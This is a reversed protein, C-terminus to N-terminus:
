KNRPTPASGELIALKARMASLERRLLETEVRDYGSGAHRALEHLMEREDATIDTGTKHPGFLALALGERAGGTVPVALCPAAEEPPLGASRWQERRLRTPADRALCQLAPADRAADLERLAAGDWGIAPEARRLAGEMWRFVAASSLRLAQAPEAALLRDIEAFDGARLMAEGTQRLWQRLRHYRRNFVHDVLDVAIEHLRNFILLVIPAVVLPWIWEPLHLSEQYQAVAEHLAVVPVGLVLMLATTITGHRLPIAVSVVRQRRVATGVFYAIVGHLLYLLGIASQSLTAGWLDYLLGSSQCIEAFIFAPLGISCGAIAWRMRQEDQAPLRRRRELLIAIVVADVVYGALFSAEAIRETPVGFLNAGPLLMLVALLAGLWPLAREARRWRPDAADGPFRLAFALLGAYAAAQALAEAFEQVLVAVPWSQLVAYYAYTQGPNFWVAYLFFGWRMRTPQVWVLRFATLIFLVGVVTDALLVLRAPWGLPAPAAELRITRAPGGDTRRITVAIARGPLVYQLGGLGGLVSVLDACARSRPHTCQMRELDIRDGRVIGANAAPSATATAFPSLIDIVVGDNDATLGFAALPEAIRYLAPLIMALAWAVLALLLLRGSGDIRGM